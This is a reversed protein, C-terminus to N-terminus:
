NDEHVMVQDQWDGQAPKIMWAIDRIEASSRDRRAPLLGGGDFRQLSIQCCSCTRADLIQEESLLAERGVEVARISIPHPDDSDASPM